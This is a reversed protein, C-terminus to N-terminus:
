RGGTGVKMPRDRAAKQTKIVPRSVGSMAEHM